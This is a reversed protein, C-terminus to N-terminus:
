EMLNAIREQFAAIVHFGVLLIYVLLLLTKLPTKPMRIQGLGAVLWWGAIWLAIATDFVTGIWWDPIFDLAAISLLM